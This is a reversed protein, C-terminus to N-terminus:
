SLGFIRKSRDRYFWIGSIYLEEGLDKMSFHKSLWVKVISLMGVDNEIILIDDLPSLARM